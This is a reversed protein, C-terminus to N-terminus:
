LTPRYRLAQRAFWPLGALASRAPISALGGPPSRGVLLSAAGSLLATAGAAPSRAQAYAGLATSLDAHRALAQLLVSADLLAQNAGQGLHPLMAQAADGILAIRGAARRGGPPLAFLVTHDLSAEATGLLVARAEPWDEVVQSPHTVGCGERAVVTWRTQDGGPFFVASGREGVLTVLQDPACGALRRASTGWWVVQGAPRPRSGPAVVDRLTSRIGDAGVVLDAMVVRGGVRCAVRSGVSRAGHVPSDWWVRGPPLRAALTQVLERRSVAIPGPMGDEVAWRGVPLESIACGRQDRLEVTHLAQGLDGPRLGLAGLASMAAPWLSLMGGRTPAAEAREGVVVRWGARELGIAMALGGVGAGAVLATRGAHRRLHDPM